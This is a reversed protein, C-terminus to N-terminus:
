SPATPVNASVFIKREEKMQKVTRIMKFGSYPETGRLGVNKTIYQKLTCYILQSCLESSNSSCRFQKQSM